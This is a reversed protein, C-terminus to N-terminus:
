FCLLLFGGSLHTLLVNYIDSSNLPVRGQLSTHLLTNTIYQTSLDLGYQPQHPVAVLSLVNQFIFYYVFTDFHKFSWFTLDGSSLYNSWSYKSLHSIRLTTAGLAYYINCMKTKFDSRKSQSYSDLVM